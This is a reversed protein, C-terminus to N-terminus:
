AAGAKEKMIAIEMRPRPSYLKTATLRVVQSDDKFAIGNLGDLAAKIFNDLDPRKIPLMEGLEAAVTRRRSWSAPIPVHVSVWVHLPGELPPAGNMADGAALKVLNEYSRTKAPTYGRPHGGPGKCFRPRGKAVPLGPVTINLPADV